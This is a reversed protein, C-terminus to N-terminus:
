PRSSLQWVMRSIAASLRTRTDPRAVRNMPDIKRSLDLSSPPQARRIGVGATGGLDRAETSSPTGGGVACLADVVQAQEEPPHQDVVTGVVSGPPDLLDEHVPMRSPRARVGPHDGRGRLAARLAQALGYGAPRRPEQGPTRVSPPAPLVPQSVPGPHVLDERPLPWTRSTPGSRPVPKEVPGDRRVAERVRRAGRLAVPAGCTGSSEQSNGEDRSRGHLPSSQDATAIAPLTCGRWASCNGNRAPRGGVAAASAAACTKGTGTCPKDFRVVSFNSERDRLLRRITRTKGFRRSPHAARGWTTPRRPARIAVLSPPQDNRLGTDRGPFHTTSMNGPSGTAFESLSRVHPYIDDKGCWFEGTDQGSPEFLAARM